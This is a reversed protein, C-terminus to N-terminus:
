LGIRGQIWEAIASLNDPNFFPIGEIAYSVLQEPAVLAIPAPHIASLIASQEDDRFVAIQPQNGHKFGEIFILDYGDKQLMPLVEELTNTVRRYSICANPSIVIAAAAGADIYQASDSQTAEKYHGHADHKVVACQINTQAFHTVLRSILTTKGSNSYGAFGIVTAM